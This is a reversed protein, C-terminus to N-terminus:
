QPARGNELEKIRHELEALRQKLSTNQFDQANIILENLANQQFAMRDHQYRFLKWLIAKLRKMLTGSVGSKGPVPFPATCLAFRLRLLKNYRDLYDTLDRSAQLSLASDDASWPSLVGQHRAARRTLECGIENTRDKGAVVIRM